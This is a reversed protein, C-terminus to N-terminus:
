CLWNAKAMQALRCPCIDQELLQDLGPRHLKTGSIAGDEFELEEPIRYGLSDAQQRCERQQDRLSSDDQLNSSYGAYSAAVPRSDPEVGITKQCVNSM